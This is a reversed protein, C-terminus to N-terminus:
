PLFKELRGHNEHDGESERRHAVVERGTHRPMTGFDVLV